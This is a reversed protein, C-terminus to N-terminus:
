TNKSAWLNQDVGLWVMPVDKWIIDQAKVYAQARKDPDATKLGDYILNDFEPNNYYSANYSVPPFSEKCAIPRIGWDADGTSPSWGIIYMEISADAGSTGAKVNSVKSMLTGNDMSEINVTVGVLKLQQQIFEASKVSSTSNGVWLTTTFGNEIGAEKLLSKAKEINYQYIDNEKYYQVNPAIISKTPTSFGDWVVKCYADKDIAYNLAQRVKINNFPAKENNLFLYRVSLGEEENVSLTSDSKLKEISETPVPYIFDADGSQLMAVRTDNEKVPKFTVSDFAVNGNWYKDNKEIKMSEGPRWEAFKYMGTGVPHQSVDKGYKELAAPSIMGAAPHALTNIMAGFPEKLVIKIVYDSIKETHDIMKFLTNRKLGQTQDALRNFNIIAADANWPTGDTFEVGERLTFTFQDATDNAKYETALAPIVKMDNDFGFLGEIMTKEGGCSLTDNTDAPDFTVFDGNIAIVIDKKGSSAEQGGTSGCGTLLISMALITGSIFAFNRKM